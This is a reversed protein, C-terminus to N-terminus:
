GTSQQVRVIPFNIFCQCNWYPRGQRFLNWKDFCFTTNKGLLFCTNVDAIVVPTPTEWHMIYCCIIIHANRTMHSDHTSKLFCAVEGIYLQMIIYLATSICLNKKFSAETISLISILTNDYLSCTSQTCIYIICVGVTVHRLHAFLAPHTCM